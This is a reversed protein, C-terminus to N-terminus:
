SRGGSGAQRGAGGRGPLRPILPSGTSGSASPAASVANVVVLEGEGIDGSVATTTGDSIGPEVAVEHIQAGDYVWVHASAQRASPTREERVPRADAAARGADRPSVVLGDGYRALLDTTPRFRLAATPVRLASEARAVDITVNATMGPKLLLERNPVNIVTVYSVVNQEVVPNLRVQVVQGGFTRDPFADVRFHVDQGAQIRGIDAEDVSANVQMEALDKAIVFLTPAQTSAAVTQGVDVNRSVVVGDIPARIITHDLNVQAQRLAAQAQTVQAEASTVDADASAATTRATDLDTAAILQQASLAEARRLKTAADASAVKAREVESQLRLLNAKAQEVQSQFISQELRAVVQGQRVRSNFDAFLADITGSVQTGVQVTTVAQVTGTANVMEVVDGRTVEATTLPSSIDVPRNWWYWGGALVGLGAIIGLWIRMRTWMDDERRDHGAEDGAAWTALPMAATM